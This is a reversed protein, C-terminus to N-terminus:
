KQALIKELQDIGYKAILANAVATKSPEKVVGETVTADPYGKKHLYTEMEDASDLKRMPGQIKIVKSEHAMARITAPSEGDLCDIGLSVSWARENDKKADTRITFTTM